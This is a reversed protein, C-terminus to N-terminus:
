RRAPRGVALMEAPHQNRARRRKSRSRRRLRPRSATAAHARGRAMIVGRRSDPSSGPPAQSQRDDAGEQIEHPGPLRVAANAQSQQSSAPLAHSPEQLRGSSDPPILLLPSTTTRHRHAAPVQVFATRLAIPYGPRTRAALSRRMEGSEHNAFASEYAMTITSLPMVSASRQDREEASAPRM